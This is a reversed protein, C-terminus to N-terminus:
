GCSGSAALAGVGRGPVYGGLALDGPETRLDVLPHAGEELARDLAAPGVEPEVGGVELHAAGPVDDRHRCGDCDGDVGLAPAVHDGGGDAGGEDLLIMGGGRGLPALDRVGQAGAELGEGPEHVLGLGVHEGEHGEGPVM